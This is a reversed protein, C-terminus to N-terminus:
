TGQRRTLVRAVLDLAFPGQYHCGACAPAMRGTASIDVGTVNTVANMKAGVVNNVLRYATVIKLGAAENGAYRQLWAPSRFYGLGNPDASVTPTTGGTPVAVTYKGVFLDRWPKATNLIEKALYYPADEAATMGRNDNFRANIFRAFREIFAP